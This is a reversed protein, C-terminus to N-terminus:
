RGQKYKKTMEMTKGSRTQGRRMRETMVAGQTGQRKVMTTLRVMFYVTGEIMGAKSFNKNIDSDLVASISGLMQNPFSCGCCWRCSMPHCCTLHLLFLRNSNLVDKFGLFVLVMILALWLTSRGEVRRIESETAKEDGAGQNAIVREKEQQEKMWAAEKDCAWEEAAMREVKDTKSGGGGGMADGADGRVEVPSYFADWLKLLLPIAYGWQNRKM